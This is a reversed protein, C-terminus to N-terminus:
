FLFLGPCVADRLATRLSVVRALHQIDGIVWIIMCGKLGGRHRCETVSSLASYNVRQEAATFILILSSPFTRM